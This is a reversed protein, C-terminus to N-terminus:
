TSTTKPTRHQGDYVAQPNFVRRVIEDLDAIGARRIRRQYFWSIPLRRYILSFLLDELTHHHVEWYTLHVNGNLFAVSPYTHSRPIPWGEQEELIRYDTWIHGGDRSIATTLNTRIGCNNWVLLIDSSGPLRRVMCPVATSYPGWKDVNGWNEGGDNSEAIWINNNKTRMFMKVSGNALEVCTPEAGSDEPPLPGACQRWAAGDDDSIWVQCKKMTLPFLIRGSSLRLLRDNCSCWYNNDDPTIQVPKSWTKCEDDSYKLMPHLSTYDPDPGVGQQGDKRMFSLLIRGSPLRLLSAAMVNLRGINEQVLFPDSWTEGEDRSWKGMIKAHGEDRWNPGDYFDTYALFLRGDDFPLISAETQRCHQPNAPCVVSSIEKTHDTM